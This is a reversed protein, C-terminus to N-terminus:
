KIHNLDERIEESCLANPLSGWYSFTYYYNLYGTKCFSLASCKLATEEKSMELCM